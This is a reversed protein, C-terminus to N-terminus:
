LYKGLLSSSYLIAVASWLDDSFTTNRLPPTLLSPCKQRLIANQLARISFCVRKKKKKAGHMAWKCVRGALVCATSECRSGFALNQFINMIM